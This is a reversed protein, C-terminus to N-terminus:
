MNPILLLFSEPMGNGDIIQTIYETVNHSPESSLMIKPLM